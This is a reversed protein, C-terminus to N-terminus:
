RQSKCGSLSAVNDFKTILFKHVAAHGQYGALLAEKRITNLTFLDLTGEAVRRLHLDNSHYPDELYNSVRRDRVGMNKSMWQEKELQMPLQQNSSKSAPFM